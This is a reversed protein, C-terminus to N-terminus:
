GLSEHYAIVSLVPLFFQGGAITGGFRLNTTTRPAGTLPDILNMPTVSVIDCPDSGAHLLLGTPDGTDGDPGIYAAENNKWAGWRVADGIPPCWASCDVPSPTGPPPSPALNDYPAYLGLDIERWYVWGNEYRDFPQIAATNDDITKFSGLFRLKDYNPHEPGYGPCIVPPVESVRYEPGEGAADLKAYAYYWTNKKLGSTTGPSTPCEDPITLSGATASVWSGDDNCTQRKYLGRHLIFGPGFYLSNDDRYQCVCNRLIDVCNAFASIGGTPGPAADWPIVGPPLTAAGTWDAHSMPVVGLDDGGVPFKAQIAELAKRISGALFNVGDRIDNLNLFNAM